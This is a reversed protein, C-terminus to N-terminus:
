NGDTSDIVSNNDVTENVTSPGGGVLHLGKKEKVYAELIVRYIMEFAPESNDRSAISGLGFM